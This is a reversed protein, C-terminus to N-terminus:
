DFTIENNILVNMDEKSLEQHSIIQEIVNYILRLRKKDVGSMKIFKIRLPYGSDLFLSMESSSSRFTISVSSIARYPITFIERTKEFSLKRDFLLIKKNTFVGHDRKTKYGALVKEEAFIYDFIYKPLDNVNINKSFNFYKAIEKYKVYAM